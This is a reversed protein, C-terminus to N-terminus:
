ATELDEFAWFADKGTTLYLEYVQRVGFVPDVLGRGNIFGGQEEGIACKTGDRVRKILVIM